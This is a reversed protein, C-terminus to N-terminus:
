ALTDAHPISSICLSVLTYVISHFHLPHIVILQPFVDLHDCAGYMSAKM